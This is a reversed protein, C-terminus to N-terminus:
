GIAEQDFIDVVWRGPSPAPVGALKGGYQPLYEIQDLTTYGCEAILSTRGFPLPLNSTHSDSRHIQRDMTPQRRHFQLLVPHRLLWARDWVITHLDASLRATASRDRRGAAHIVADAPSAIDVLQSEQRGGGVSRQNTALLAWELRHERLSGGSSRCARRCFEGLSRHRPTADCYTEVQLRQARAQVSEAQISRAPVVHCDGVGTMRSIDGAVTTAPPGGTWAPLLSGDGSWPVCQDLDASSRSAGDSPNVCGSSSAVRHLGHQRRKASRIRGKLIAILGGRSMRCDLPDVRKLVM